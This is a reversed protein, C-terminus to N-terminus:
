RLTPFISVALIVFPAFILLYTEFAPFNPHWRCRTSFVRSLLRNTRESLVLCHDLTGVLAFTMTDNSPNAPSSPSRLEVKLLQNKLAIASSKAAIEAFVDAVDEPIQGAKSDQVLNRQLFSGPFTCEFGLAQICLALYVM